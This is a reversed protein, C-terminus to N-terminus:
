YGRQELRKSLARTRRRNLAAVLSAPDADIQAALIIFVGGKELNETIRNGTVPATIELMKAATLEFPGLSTWRAEYITRSTLEYSVGADNLTLRPTGQCMGIFLQLVGIAFVVTCFLGGIIRKVAWMQQLPQDVTAHNFNALGSALLYFSAVTLVILFAVTKFGIKKRGYTVHDNDAIM